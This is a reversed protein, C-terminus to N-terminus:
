PVIHPILGSTREPEISDFFDINEILGGRKATSQVNSCAAM